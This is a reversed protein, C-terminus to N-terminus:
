CKELGLPKAAGKAIDDRSSFIQCIGSWSASETSVIPLEAQRLIYFGKPPFVYVKNCLPVISNVGKRTQCRKRRGGHCLRLLCEEAKAGLCLLYGICTNASDNAKVVPSRMCLKPWYLWAPQRALVGRSALCTCADLMNTFWEQWLSCYPIQQVHSLQSHM